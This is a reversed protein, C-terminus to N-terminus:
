LTFVGVTVSTVGTYTITAQGSANNFRNTPFPGFLGDAAAAIAGGANHDFGQNCGQISDITVTISGAGGNKVHLYAKGTNVFSDGGGAAAAFAPTLGDLDIQQVTLVAM